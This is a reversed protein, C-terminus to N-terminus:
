IKAQLQCVQVEKVNNQNFGMGQGAGIWLALLHNVSVLILLTAEYAGIQLSGRFHFGM